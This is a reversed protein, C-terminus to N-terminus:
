SHSAHTICASRHWTRTSTVMGTIYIKKCENVGGNRTKTVCIYTWMCLQYISQNMLRQTTTTKTVWASGSWALTRVQGCLGDTLLFSFRSSINQAWFATHSHTNVTYGDYISRCQVYETRNALRVWGWRWVRVVFVFQPGFMNKSPPSVCM